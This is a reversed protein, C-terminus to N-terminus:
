LMGDFIPEMPRIVCDIIPTDNNGININFEIVAVGKM